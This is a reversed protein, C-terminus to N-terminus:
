IIKELLEQAERRQEANGQTNVLILLEKAGVFDGLDVYQRALQLKLNIEEPDAAPGAAQNTAAVPPAAVDLDIQIEEVAPPPPTPAPTLTSPPNSPPPVELPSEPPVSVTMEDALVADLDAMNIPEEVLTPPPAASVDVAQEQVEPVFSDSTSEQQAMTAPAADTKDVGNGAAAREEDIADRSLQALRERTASFQRHQKWRKWLFLIGALITIGLTGILGLYDRWHLKKEPPLAVKPIPSSTGALAVGPPEGAKLTPATGATPSKDVSEPNEQGTTTTEPKQEAVPKHETFWMDAEPSRNSIIIREVDEVVTKLDVAKDHHEFLAQMNNREASGASIGTTTAQQKSIKALKEQPTQAVIGVPIGNDMLPIGSEGSAEELAEATLDAMSTAGTYHAKNPGASPQEIANPILRRKAYVPKGEPPIPDLLITYRRILRGSAAGSGWSLNLLFDLYPETVWTKSTAHIFIEDEDRIIQFMLKDLLPIRPVNAREFEDASAVSILLSDVVNTAALLEIEADLPENLYSYVKIRGLGVANVAGACLIGTLLYLCLSQFFHLFRRSM